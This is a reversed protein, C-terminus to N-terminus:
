SNGFMASLGSESASALVHKLIQCIVYIINHPIKTLSDTISLLFLFEGAKGKAEPKSLYYSDTHIHIVMNNVAYIIAADPFNACYNLIHSVLKTNRATAKDHQMAIINLDM